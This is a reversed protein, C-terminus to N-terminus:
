YVWSDKFSLAGKCEEGYNLTLSTGSKEDYVNELEQNSTTGEINVRKYVENRPAGWTPPPVKNINIKDQERTLTISKLEYVTQTNSFIVKRKALSTKIRTYDGTFLSSDILAGGFYTNEIVCIDSGDSLLFLRVGLTIPTSNNISVSDNDGAWVGDISSETLNPKRYIPLSSKKITCKISRCGSKIERLVSIRKKTSKTLCTVNYIPGAANQKSCMTNRTDLWDIQNTKLIDRDKTPTKKRLSNYTSNLEIDAEVYNKISCHVADFTVDHKDCSANVLTGWLLCLCVLLSKKIM